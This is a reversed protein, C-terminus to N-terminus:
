VSTKTCVVYDIFKEIKDQVYVLILLAIKAGYKSM